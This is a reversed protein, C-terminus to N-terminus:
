GNLDPSYSSRYFRAYFAQVVNNAVTMGDDGSIVEGGLTPQFNDWNTESVTYTSGDGPSQSFLAAVWVAELVSEFSTQTWSGLVGNPNARVTSDILSTDTLVSAGGGGPDGISTSSFGANDTPIPKSSTFSSYLTVSGSALWSKISARTQDRVDTNTLNGDSSGTVILYPVDSSGLGGKNGSVDGATGSTATMSNYLSGAAKWRQLPSGTGELSFKTDTPCLFALAGEGKSQVEATGITLPKVGADAIWSNLPKYNEQGYDAFLVLQPGLSLGTATKPTATQVDTVINVWPGSADANSTFVGKLSSSVCDIFSSYEAAMATADQAATESENLVEGIAYVSEEIKEVTSFDMNVFTINYGYTERKLEEPLTGDLDTIIKQDYLVVGDYGVAEVFKQVDIGSFDTESTSTWMYVSSSDWEDSNSGFVNEFTSTSNVDQYSYDYSSLACISGKGGLSQVTVAVQKGLVGVNDAQPPDEKKNNADFVRVSGGYGYYDPNRGEAQPDPNDSIDGGADLGASDGGSADGGAADGENGSAGGDGQEDSENPGEDATEDTADNGQTTIYSSLAGSQTAVESINSSAGPGTATVDDRDVEEEAEVEGQLEAEANFSLVVGDSAKIGPFRAYLDFVSHHTTMTSNPESSWTVLNEVDESHVSDDTWDLAALSESEEEADPSNVLIKDPNNEDVEDSQPTIIKEVFFDTPKCSCLCVALLCVLAVCFVVKLYKVLKRGNM